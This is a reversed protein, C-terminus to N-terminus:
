SAQVRIHKGNSASEAVCTHGPTLVLKQELGPVTRQDSFQSLMYVCLYVCKCM